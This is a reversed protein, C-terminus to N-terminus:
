GNRYRSDYEDLGKHADSGSGNMGPLNDKRLSPLVDVNDSAFGHVEEDMKKEGIDLKTSRKQAHWQTQSSTNDATYRHVWPDMDEPSIPDAM